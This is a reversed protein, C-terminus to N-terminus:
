KFTLDAFHRKKRHDQYKPRPIPRLFKTKNVDSGLVSQRKHLRQSGTNRLHGTTKLRHGDTHVTGCVSDDNPLGSKQSLRDAHTSCAVM